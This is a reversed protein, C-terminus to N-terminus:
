ATGQLQQNAYALGAAIAELEAAIAEKLALTDRALAPIDADTPNTTQAIAILGRYKVCAALSNQLEDQRTALASVATRWADPTTPMPSKPRM